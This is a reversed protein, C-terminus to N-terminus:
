NVSRMLDKIQLRIAQILNDITNSQISVKSSDVYYEVPLHRNYGRVGVLIEAYYGQVTDRYFEGHRPDDWDADFPYQDAKGQWLLITHFGLRELYTSCFHWEPSSVQESIWRKAFDELALMLDNYCCRLRRTERSWKVLRQPNEAMDSVLKSLEENSSCTYYISQMGSFIYVVRDSISTSDTRTYIYIHAQQGYVIDVEDSFFHHHPHDFRVSDQDTGYWFVLWYEETEQKFHTRYCKKHTDTDPFDSSSQQVGIAGLKELAQEVQNM